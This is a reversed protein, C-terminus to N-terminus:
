PLAVSVAAAANNEVISMDSSDVLGDGNVDEALYGSSAIASLNEVISMDGSDVIGDQNADGGFIAYGGSGMQVLNSGFAKIPNDFSYTINSGSFSIISSSVTAISNRHRIAVYYLSNYIGPLTLTASGDTNLDINYATYIINNYLSGDHLEITIQDAIAGAFQDGSVGQAKRMYGPSYYLGELFLNLNFTKNSTLTQAAENSYASSGSANYAVVRYTYLISASLGTNSYNTINASVTGIETFAGADAKREIRFGTENSSNDAWMLNIQGPPVATATLSSPAAPPLTYENAGIDAAATYLANGWYDRGGNNSITKGTNICSSGSQLKYGSVTNLGFGGSGPSVLKPDTTVKHADSPETSPHIGYFCNYDISRTYGTTWDYSATPSLNYILNNNFTYIRSGAGGVNRESIILPSLNSPIYVTNNYIRVSTVPYNICFIVGQDNQSINYRCVVNVDAQVTCTWFLGHANDHSYSYQWYTNPSRLDADYLSGDADPSNNDYGENYQFVTGSCAASFITNGTIGNATNYCVNNEIVGGEFLRIIMANKSINSITNNRIVANTIKMSNWEASYPDFGDDTVCETIIGQNECSSIVCNEILIDNFHTEQSAVSVIAFGIGGTRKDTREQGVSGKINHIYLNKLYIHNATGFNEAEIRVGRRDGAAAANNTIELNNVEWYQQNYLYVVGTGTMGNGDIIPKNGEGYMDIIIPSGSIGSGKPYLKGTWVGGAKFLIRNNATFTTANVKTLTKWATASSLGNNADNGGTFDIFYTIIEISQTTASAENSYASNGTVNYALVRFTYLTSPVLGTNSYSIINPGVIAIQAFTGTGTKREIIFGAENSAHDTWFLQIESSSISNATLNDPSIPLTPAGLTTASSENSYASNGFTNFAFVRYTYLTSENLGTNSYSNVNAGVSAIETYTGSGTKREIKYGDENNANDTWTLDIQNSAITNAALNTPADPVVPNSVIVLEPRNAVAEKSSFTITPTTVTASYVVISIIKDNGSFQSQVYTTIDWEYYGPSALLPTTAIITGEAPANSWTLGTETWGDAVQHINMSVATSTTAYLRIIASSVVTVGSTTLDFKLYAKRFNVSTAKKVILDVATGYNTTANADYIYSDATPNYTAALAVKGPILLAIIIFFSSFFTTKSIFRKM